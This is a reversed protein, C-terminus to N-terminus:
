LNISSWGPASFKQVSSIARTLEETFELIIHLVQLCCTKSNIVVHRLEGILNNYTSTLLSPQNSTITAIEFSITDETPMSGLAMNLRDQSM